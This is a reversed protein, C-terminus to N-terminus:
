ATAEGFPAPPTKRPRGRGRKPPSSPQGAPNAFPDAEPSPRATDQRTPKPPIIPPIILPEPAASGSPRDLEAMMGDVIRVAQMYADRALLAAYTTPAYSTVKALVAALEFAFGTLDVLLIVVKIKPNEHGLQDLASIQALMGNNYPVYDPSAEVATRIADDRHDEQEQLASKMTALKADEAALINQFAPLESQSHQETTQSRGLSESRLAILQKQAAELAAGIQQDQDKANAVMELDAQRRPGAGATGSSDPSKIGGLEEAATTEAQQVAQDAAAKQMVLQSVEQQAMQVQTDGAAPDVENGRLATVQAALAAEQAAEANVAETARQIQGNVLVTAASVSLANSKMNTERLRSSLDANFIILSLFIATIQAIGMSLIIRLALFIGAKIRPGIGGSVDIGARKLEEIGSLHWGSRFVMYSDIGLIFTALFASAIILLPRIQGPAAFLRHSIISFLATQYIWVLIMLSAVARVTDHDQEPCQNLTNGDVGTMFLIFKSPLNKKTQPEPTNMDM